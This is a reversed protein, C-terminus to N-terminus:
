NYTGSSPHLPSVPVTRTEEAFLYNNRLYEGGAARRARDLPSANTALPSIYLAPGVVPAGPTGKVVKQRSQM